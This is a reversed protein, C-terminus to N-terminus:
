LILFMDKDEVRFLEIKVFAQKVDSAALCKDPSIRVLFHASWM